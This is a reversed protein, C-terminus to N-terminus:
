LNQNLFLSVNVRRFVHRISAIQSSSRAEGTSGGSDDGSAKM